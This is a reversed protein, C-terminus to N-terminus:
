DLWIDPDVVVNHRRQSRNDVCEFAVQYRYAGPSIGGIGPAIAPRQPSGPIRNGSWPWRGRPTREIHFQAVQGTPATMYWEVVDGRNVRLYWPSLTFTVSDGSCAVALNVRHTAQLGVPPPAQQPACSVFVVSAALVLSPTMLRVLRM